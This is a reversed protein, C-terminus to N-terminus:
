ISSSDILGINVPLDERKSGESLPSLYPSQDMAAKQADLSCSLSKAQREETSLGQRQQALNDKLNSILRNSGYLRKQLSRQIQTLEGGAHYLALSKSVTSKILNDYDFNDGIAKPPFPTKPLRNFLIVKISRLLEQAELKRQQSAHRALVPLENESLLRRIAAQAIDDLRGWKMEITKQMVHKVQAKLGKHNRKARRPERQCPQNRRLHLLQRRADALRTDQHSKTPTEIDTREAGALKTEPLRTSTKKTKISTISKRPTMM